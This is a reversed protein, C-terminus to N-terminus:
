TFSEPPVTAFLSRNNIVTSMKFTEAKKLAMQAVLSLLFMAVVLM